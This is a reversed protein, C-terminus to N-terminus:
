AAIAADVIVPPADDPWLRACVSAVLRSHNNRVYAARYASPLIVSLHGGCRWVAANSFWARFIAPVERELVRQLAITEANTPAGQGDSGATERETPVSTTTHADSTAPRDEPVKEAVRSSFDSGVASGVPRAMALIAARELRYRSVRGRVGAAVLSILGLARLRKMERKATSPDVHWFGALWERGVSLEDRRWDYRATIVGILRLASTMVRKPQRYAWVTLATLLDYKM